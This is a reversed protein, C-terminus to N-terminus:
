PSEGSRRASLLYVQCVLPSPVRAELLKVMMKREPVCPRVSRSLLTADTNRETMVRVAHGVCDVGARISLARDPISWVSSRGGQQITEGILLWGVHIGRVGGDKATLTALTFRHGVGRPVDRRASEDAACYLVQLNEQDDLCVKLM